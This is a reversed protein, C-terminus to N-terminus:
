GGTDSCLLSGSQPGSASHGADKAHRASCECASWDRSVKGHQVVTVVLATLMDHLYQYKGFPKPGYAFCLLNSKLLSCSAGYELDVTEGWIPEGCDAPCDSDGLFTM